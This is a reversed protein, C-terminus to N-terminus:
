AAVAWVGREVSLFHHQLTQRIKARNNNNTKIKSEAIREVESYIKELSSEGGLNMLALRVFSRWTSHIANQYNRAKDWCVHALTVAEKKWILLYEHEIRIVKGPYSNQGSQTNHQLKIVVSLLEKKPLLNIYDAQFSHFKGGKRMDGILTTYIGGAVTAERQNLLMLQSKELFEEVNQCESLDNGTGVDMGHRAREAQYKIMDHYPPHSFVIDAPRGVAALVSNRTFDFGSHLDLGVYPVNMEKCVDRSTGSGECVDVFLKPSFQSILDKIIYGSTNGRWSAKGYQKGRDPYSVISNM